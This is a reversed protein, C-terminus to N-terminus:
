IISFIQHWIASAAEQSYNKRAHNYANLSLQNYCNNDSLLLSIKQIYMDLDSFDNIVYGNVNDIVIDKIDGVNSVVCPIGCAMAEVVTRPLGETSSTLVFVKGSNYFEVSDEVFGLLFINENLKYKNIFNLLNEKEPGSGAIGVKIAPYKGKLAKGIKLLNILEKESSLRGLCVIDYKKNIKKKDFYSCDISNPLIYIKNSDVGNKILIEKSIAGTVTIYNSRKLLYYTIKKRIGKRIKKYEPNSIICIVSPVRKIIGVLFALLGHPIEYIGIIFNTDNSIRFLMQFFRYINTYIPKKFIGPEFYTIKKNFLSKADRFVKIENASDIDAIPKIFGYAGNKDLKCVVSIKM